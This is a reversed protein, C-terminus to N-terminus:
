LLSLQRSPRRFAHTREPPEAADDRANIGLRKCQAEFLQEIMAWRKGMGSMRRGFRPDYLEGGRMDQIAHM